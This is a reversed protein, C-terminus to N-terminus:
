MRLDALARTMVVRGDPYRQIPIYGLKQYWDYTVSPPSELTRVVGIVLDQSRFDELRNNTLERAIGQQRYSKLVGLDDQYAVLANQAIGLKTLPESILVGLKKELEAVTIPYGFCFGVVRGQDTALWCSSSPSLEHALDNLVQETPWFDDVEKGCHCFAVSGLEQHENIGWKRQCVSCIKWENWPEDAFVEQFCKVLPLLFPQGFRQISVM